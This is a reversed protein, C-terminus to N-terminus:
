IEITTQCTLDVAPFAANNAVLTYHEGVEVVAWGEVDPRDISEIAPVADVVLQDLQDTVADADGVPAVLRVRLRLQYRGPTPPDPATLYPAVSAVLAVPPTVRAPEHDLAHVVTADLAAALEARADALRNPQHERPPPTVTM